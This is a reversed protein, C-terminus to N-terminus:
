VQFRKIYNELTSAKVGLLTSGYIFPIAGQRAATAVADTFRQGNRMAFLNWFNGKSEETEEKAREKDEIAQFRAYEAKAKAQFEEAGIKGLDNARRLAVISSVRYYAALQKVNADTTKNSSWLDLFSERPVLVEAAIENCTHELSVRLAESRRVPSPNSIGTAGLWIHALEHALTFIQAAKADRSNIFVLPAYSDSIAFGRFEDVALSRTNDHRVVSNRMVIVGAADARQVLKLFFDKWTQCQLRLREDLRLVTRISKAVININHKPNFQGVFTLPRAGESMLYDRYWDQRVVADNVTDVFETSPKGVSRGDVTRLDPIPLQLKPADDLLLVPFPIRLKHALTEAQALTPLAERDHWSRIQDADVFNKALQEISLGAREIAWELVEPNIPVEVLSDQLDDM